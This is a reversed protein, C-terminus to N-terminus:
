GSGPHVDDRGRRRLFRRRSWIRRIRHKRVRPERTLETEVVRYEDTYTSLMAQLVAAVPLALVAGVGGFLLGGAFVAGITIAPHIKLTFRAVRPMLIYNEFQNYATLGVIVWLTDGPDNVVAVLAPLVMAIYTGITPIFQSTVGVFIGLAVPSPLHLVFDFFLWSAFSSATALIARSYLYAGTKEIALEWTELVVEQRARPLRSCIARRFKPGDATLYFAFIITTVIQLLGTAIGLAFQPASDALDRAFTQVAGNKSQVERILNKPDIGLGFDDNLFHTVKRVYRPADSVLASVQDVVISGLAAVFSITVVLVVILTLGTATGRRWGRKVLFKVPAEMAMSLFLAIVIMIVLSRLRHLVWLAAAIALAWGFFLAIARRLWRPVDDTGDTTTEVVETVDEPSDPADPADVPAKRGSDSSSGEEAVTRKAGGRARSREM